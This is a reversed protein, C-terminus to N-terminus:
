LSQKQFTNLFLSWTHLRFGKACLLKTTPKSIQQQRQVIPKNTLRINIHIFWKHCSMLINTAEKRKNYRLINMLFGWLIYYINFRYFESFTNIHLSTNKFFVIAPIVFLPTTKKKILRQFSLKSYIHNTVTILM